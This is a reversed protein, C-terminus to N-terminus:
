YTIFVNKDLLYIMDKLVKLKGEVKQITRYKYGLAQNRIKLLEGRAETLKLSSDREAQNIMKWTKYLVLLKTTPM